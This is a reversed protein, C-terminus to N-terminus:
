APPETAQPAEPVAPAEPAAPVPAAPPAPPAYAAPPAPPAAPAPPTPPAPPAYAPPAPPPAYAPAPPQAEYGAPPPAYGGAPPIYGPQPAPYGAVSPAVGYARAAYQGLLHGGVMAMLYYVAPYIISGIGGTIGSIMGLAASTVFSVLLTAMWAGWYGSGSRVRDMIAGFEFFAGFRQQTAYHTTAAAFLISVAISYVVAVAWFICMGGMMAAAFADSDGGQTAATVIAPALFVGALIFIPLFYVFGAISVLFGQVWKNGFDTWEPLREDGRATSRIYELQAGYVAPSTVVLLIWLYGLATKRVWDTDDFPARIARGIDIGDM